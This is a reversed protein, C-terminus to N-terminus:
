DALPCTALLGTGSITGTSSATPTADRAAAAAPTAAATADANAAAATADGRPEAHLPVHQDSCTYSTLLECKIEFM